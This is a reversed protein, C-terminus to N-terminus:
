QGPWHNRLKERDLGGEGVAQIHRSCQLWIKAKVRTEEQGTDTKGM